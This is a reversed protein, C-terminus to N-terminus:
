RPTSTRYRVVSVVDDVDREVGWALDQEIALIRATSGVHVTGVVTGRPSVVLHPDDSGQPPRALRIWVAGDDSLVLDTFPPYVPPIKLQGRLAAATQTNLRSARNAFEASASDRAARPIPRAAFPINRAYLTDGQATLVILRMTNALSGDYVTSLSAIMAGRPSVALLPVSAFPMLMAAGGGRSNRYRARAEGDSRVTAVQRTIRHNGAIQFLATRTTDFGTPVPLALTGHVLNTGDAYVARVTVTSLAPLRNESGLPPRVEPIDVVRKLSFAPAVITLRQSFLDYVWISDGVIGARSMGQFEGPGQGRRGFSAVQRGTSDFLLISGQQAQSIAVAGDKMPLIWSVTTLNEKRGDIRTDKALELPAQRDQIPIPLMLLQAAVPLGYQLKM